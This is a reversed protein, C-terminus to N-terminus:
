VLVPFIVPSAEQLVHRGQKHAEQLFGQIDLRSLADALKNSHTDLWQVRLSIGHMAELIATNRTIVILQEGKARNRQLCEVAAKNDCYCLVTRGRWFQGFTSLALLVAYGEKWAIGKDIHESTWKHAFWFKGCVVGAGLVGSADSSFSVPFKHSGLDRTMPTCFSVGNFRDLFFLWWRLDQLVKSNPGIHSNGYKYQRRQSLAGIWRFANALFPRGPKVVRAVFALKGVVSQLMKLTMNPLLGCASRLLMRLETLREADVRITCMISDIELGLFVIVQAPGDLKDNNVRFGLRMCIRLFAAVARLAKVQTQEVGLYDDLYHVLFSIAPDRLAIWELATAYLEFLKPSSRLGFPLRKHMFFFGFLSFGLWKTDTGHVKIQRFASSLDAKWMWKGHGCQRIMVIAEDFHTYSVMADEDSILDNVSTGHHRPYSLHHIMRLKGNKKAVVGVPSCHLDAPKHRMPGKVWGREVEGLTECLVALEQAPTMPLNRHVKSRLAEHARESIGVHIGVQIGKVLRQVLIQDPHNAM